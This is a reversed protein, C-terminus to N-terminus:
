DLILRTTRSLRRMRDIEARVFDAFAAPSGAVVTAGESALRDRVDQNQLARAFEGNLATIVPLPTGARAFLGYWSTTEYGPYGSEAIAPLGPLIPSRQAGTVALARLRGAKVFNLVTLMASFGVQVQGGVLDVVAPAAGKYPVHVLDVGAMSKFLEAALHQPGGNGSSGYSIQGPRSKAITTLDKVSRAPLSPHVVLILPAVTALIVPAFDGHPDYPLKPMLAANTTFPPATLLLTHGDPASRAVVETGIVSGGGARNDVIVQQGWAESLRPAVMRAVVDVGGGASFPVVIRVPRSPFTQACTTHATASLLLIVVPSLRDFLANM